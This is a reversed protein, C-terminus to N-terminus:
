RRSTGFLLKPLSMVSTNLFTKLIWFFDYSLFMYFTKNSQILLHLHSLKYEGETIYIYNVVLYKVWYAKERRASNVRFSKPNYIYLNYKYLMWWWGFCAMTGVFITGVTITGVTITGVVYYNRFSLIKKMKIRKTSSNSRERPRQLLFIFM